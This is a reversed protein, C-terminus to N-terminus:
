PLWCPMRRLTPAAHCPAVAAHAQPQAPLHARDARAAASWSRHASFPRAPSTSVWALVQRLKGLGPIRHIFGTNVATDARVVEAFPVACVRMDAGSFMRKGSARLARVMALGVDSATVATSAQCAPHLTSCCCGAPGWGRGCSAGLWLSRIGPRPLAPTRPTQMRTRDASRQTSKQSPCHM